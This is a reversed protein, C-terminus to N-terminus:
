RSLKEMNDLEAEIKAWTIQNAYIRIREILMAERESLQMTIGQETGVQNLNVTHCREAQIANGWNQELSMSIKQPPSCLEERSAGFKHLMIDFWSEPIRGDSISSSISQPRIGFIDALQEQTKVEAADIMRKVIIKAIKKDM